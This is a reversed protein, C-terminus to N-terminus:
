AAIEKSILPLINKKYYNLYVCYNWLDQSLPFADERRGDCEMRQSVLWGLLFDEKGDDLFM